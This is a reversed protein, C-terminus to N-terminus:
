DFLSGILYAGGVGLLVWPAVAAAAGMAGMAGGAGAGAAGAGAAGAGAAGGAGAAAGSAGAAGAGSTVGGAGVTSLAAADKAAGAVATAAKPLGLGVGLGAMQQNQGRRQAKLADGTAERSEALDAAAGFGYNAQALKSRGTGVLGAM